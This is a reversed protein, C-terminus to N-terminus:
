ASFGIRTLDELPLAPLRLRRLGEAVDSASLAARQSSSQLRQAITRPTALLVEGSAETAMTVGGSVCLVPVVFGLELAPAQRFHSALAQAQRRAQSRANATKTLALGNLTPPGNVPVDLVGTSRTDKQEVTFVGYPTVALADTEVERRDNTIVYGTVILAHGMRCLAAFLEREGATRPTTVQLAM